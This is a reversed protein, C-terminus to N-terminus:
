IVKIHANRYWRGHTTDLLDAGPNSTDFKVLSEGYAADQDTIVGTFGQSPTLSYAQAETTDDVLIVVRDGKRPKDLAIM